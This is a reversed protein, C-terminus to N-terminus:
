PKQEEEPTRYDITTGNCYDRIDALMRSIWAQPMGSDMYAFAVHVRLAFPEGDPLPDAEYYRIVKGDRCHAEALLKKSM